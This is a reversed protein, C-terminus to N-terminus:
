VVELPTVRERVREALTLGLIRGYERPYGVPSVEAGFPGGKEAAREISVKKRFHTHGCVAIKVGRARGIAEGLRLSGMFGNIFDWPLRDRPGAAAAGAPLRGLDLAAFSTVLEAFPLHHTVVVVERAGVEALERELSAVQRDCIAVADLPQGDDGPWVVRALDNWRLRGWAGRRYDDPTFVSDLDRSRLSYDYWGTAGVFALGGVDLPGHGCLDVGARACLAPIESEYRARSTPGGPATWLDHNGPVFVLRRVQRRLAALAAELTALNPSLDGAVILVEVDLARAREGVLPVVDAHHDIHLDSTLALRV